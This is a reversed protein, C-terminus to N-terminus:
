RNRKSFIRSGCRPIEGTLPKLNFDEDTRITSNRPIRITGHRGRSSTIRPVQSPGNRTVINDSLRQVATVDDLGVIKSPQSPAGFMGTVNGLIIDEVPDNIVFTFSLFIVTVFMAVVLAHLSSEPNLGLYGFAMNEVFRQWLAVLIWAIVIGFLTEVFSLEFVSKDSLAM